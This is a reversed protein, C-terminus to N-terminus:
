LPDDFLIFPYEFESRQEMIMSFNKKSMGCKEDYDFIRINCHETKFLGIKLLALLQNVNILM